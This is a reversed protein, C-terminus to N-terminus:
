DQKRYSNVPNGTWYRFAHNFVTQETFGFMYAIDIVPIDKRALYGMVMEMRVSNFIKQFTTGEQQLSKQLARTNMSLKNSIEPLTPLNGHMRNAILEAVYMSTTHPTYNNVLTKTIYKNMMETLEEDKFNIPIDKMTLPFVMMDVPQDYAIIVPINKHFKTQHAPRKSSFLIKVPLAIEDSIKKIFQIVELFFGEAVHRRVIKNSCSCTLKLLLLSEHQETESQIGSALLSSYNNIKEFAEGMDTCNFMSFWLLHRSRNKPHLLSLNYGFDPDNTQSLAYGILQYYSSMSIRQDVHTVQEKSIAVKKCAEEIDMGEKQMHGLLIRVIMASASDEPEILSLYNKPM